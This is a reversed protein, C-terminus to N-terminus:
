CQGISEDGGTTRRSHQRVLGSAAALRTARWRRRTGMTARFWSIASGWGTKTAVQSDAQAGLRPPGFLGMVDEPLGQPGGPFAGAGRRVIM